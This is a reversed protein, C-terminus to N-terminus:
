DIIILQDSFPHQRQYVSTDPDIQRGCGLRVQHDSITCVTFGRLDCDETNTENAHRLDIEVLIGRSVGGVCALVASSNIAVLRSLNERIIPHSPELLYPRPLQIPSRRSRDFRCVVAKRHGTASQNKSNNLKRMTTATSTASARGQCDCFRSRRCDVDVESHVAAASVQVGYAPGPAEFPGLYYGAGPSTPPNYIMAVRWIRCQPSL